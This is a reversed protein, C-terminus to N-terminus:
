RNKDRAKTRLKREALVIIRSPERGDLDSRRPLESRSAHGALVRDVTRDPLCFHAKLAAHDIAGAPTKFCEELLRRIVRPKEPPPALNPPEQKRWGRSSLQMFLYKQQRSTIIDLHRARQVLAQISVRWRLKLRALLDLTIPSVLERYMATEPLLLEGAFLNAEEHLHSITGYKAQHLVLHGIEHAVSFRLRDSAETETLVIVPALEKSEVWVSFADVYQLKLPLSIVLIGAKEVSHILHKIPADPPLGIEARTMQAATIPDTRLRPLRLPPLIRVKQLFPEVGQFIVEAFSRAADRDRARLRSASRFLLSGVPFPTGPRRSFFRPPLGTALSIRYVEEQSISRLGAEIRSLEFQKIGARYALETQSLRHLERAQRVRDGYIM